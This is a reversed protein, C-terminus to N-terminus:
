WYKPPSEAFGVVAEWWLVVQSNREKCMKAQKNKNVYVNQSVQKLQKGHAFYNALFFCVDNFFTRIM